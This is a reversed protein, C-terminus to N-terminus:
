CVTSPLDSDNIVWEQPLLTAVSVHPWGLGSFNLVVNQSYQIQTTLVDVKSLKTVNRKLDVKFSPGAVGPLIGVPTVIPPPDGLKWPQIEVTYKVTSIWYTCSMSIAEANPSRQGAITTGVLFAVNTTGGGLSGTEPDFKTSVTFSLHKTINKGENAKQLVTSPNDLMQQTITKAGIFCSLDQPKRASQSNEIKQSDFPVEKNPFRIEFPTIVAEPFKPAGAIVSQSAPELCQANITTGHPISAMRSLTAGIKPNQDVAPTRMFLGNEFHIGLPKADAKGMPTNTVDQIVQTYSVGNLFVDPQQGSGRNPTPEPFPLFQLEEKTLNLELLNDSESGPDSATSQPRFITNFGTGVFKGKFKDLIPGLFVPSPQPDSALIQASGSHLDVFM